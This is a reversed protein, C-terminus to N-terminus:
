AAGGHLRQWQHADREPQRYTWTRAPVVYLTCADHGWRNPLTFRQVDGRRNNWGATRAAYALADIVPQPNDHNRKM